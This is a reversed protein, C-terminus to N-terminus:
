SPHSHIPVYVSLYVFAWTLYRVLVTVAFKLCGGGMNLKYRGLQFSLTLHSSNCSIYLPWGFVSPYWFIIKMWRISMRRRWTTKRPNKKQPPSKIMNGSKFGANFDKQVFSKVSFMKKGQCHGLILVLQFKFFFFWYIFFNSLKKFLFIEKRKKKLKQFLFM